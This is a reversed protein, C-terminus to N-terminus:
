YQEARCRRRCTHGQHAGGGVEDGSGRLLRRDEREGDGDDRHPEEADATRNGPVGFSKNTM